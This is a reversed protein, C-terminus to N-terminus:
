ALTCILPPVTGNFYVSQSQPNYTHITGNSWCEYGWGPDCDHKSRCHPINACATPSGMNMTCPIMRAGTHFYYDKAM